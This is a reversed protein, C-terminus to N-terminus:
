FEVTIVFHADMGGSQMVSFLIAAHLFRGFLGLKLKEGECVSHRNKLYRWSLVGSFSWFCFCSVVFRVFLLIM